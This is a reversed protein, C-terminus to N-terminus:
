WILLLGFVVEVALSILNSQVASKDVVISVARVAAISLYSFGLMRYAAPSSLLLPALGLGILLGGMISRIETVGRGGDAKLGTFGQISRPWILSIVGTLITAISAIIKLVNLM